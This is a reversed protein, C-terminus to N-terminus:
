DIYAPCALANAQKIFSGGALRVAAWHAARVSGTTCIKGWSSEVATLAYVVFLSATTSFILVSVTSIALTGTVAACQARTNCRGRNACVRGMQLLVNRAKLRLKRKVSGPLRCNEDNEYRKKKNASAFQLWDVSPAKEINAVLNIVIIHVSITKSGAFPADDERSPFCLHFPILFNGRLFNSPVAFPYCLMIAWWDIWAACFLM